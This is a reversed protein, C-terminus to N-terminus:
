SLWVRTNKLSAEAHEELFDALAEVWLGITRKSRPFRAPSVLIIGAHDEGAALFRGHLRAFDAINDTVVARDLEGASRLLEPDRKGELETNGQIATADHGRLRLQEAISADLMEDLLIRM